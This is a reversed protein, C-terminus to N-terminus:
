GDCKENMNVSVRERQQNRDGRASEPRRAADCCRYGKDNRELIPKQSGCHKFCVESVGGVAGWARFISISLLSDTEQHDVQRRM